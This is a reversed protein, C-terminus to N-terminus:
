TKGKRAPGLSFRLGSRTSRLGRLYELVAQPGRHGPLALNWCVGPDRSVEDVSLSCPGSLLDFDNGPWQGRDGICLIASVDQDVMKALRAIVARKSVGPAVVDMSHSSRLVSVGPIEVAHVVQQLLEWVIEITNPKRSEVKIQPLRFEFEALQSLLTHRKIAEAVPRL